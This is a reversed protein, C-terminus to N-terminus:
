VRIWEYEYTHTHKIQLKPTIKFRKVIQPIYICVFPFFACKCCLNPDIRLQLKRKKTPEKTRGDRKEIVYNTLQIISAVQKRRNKEEKQLFDLYCFRSFSHFFLNSFLFLLLFFVLSWSHVEGNAQGHRYTCFLPPLCLICITFRVFLSHLPSPTKFFLVFVNM